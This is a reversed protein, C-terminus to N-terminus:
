AVPGAVPDAFTRSALAIARRRAGAEPGELIQRTISAIRRSSEATAQDPTAAQGTMLLGFAAASGASAVFDPVVAIGRGELFTEAELAVPGNAAEVILKVKAHVRRAEEPGIADEVAAPVLVDAPV